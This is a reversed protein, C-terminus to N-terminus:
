MLFIFNMYSAWEYQKTIDHGSGGGGGSGWGSGRGEEVCLCFLNQKLDSCGAEMWGGVGVGLVCM